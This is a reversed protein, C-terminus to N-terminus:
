PAKMIQVVHSGVRELWKRLNLEEFVQYVADGLWKNGYSRVLGIGDAKLV